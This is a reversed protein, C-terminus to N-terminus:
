RKPLRGGADLCEKLTKFPTFNQTKAYYTSNPAHCIKTKSMKVPENSKPPEGAFLINTSFLLVLILLLKKM